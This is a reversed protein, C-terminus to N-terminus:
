RGDDLMEARKVEILREILDASLPEDVAFHLSGMTQKYESLETALKGLVRGSHPLYALHKNFAAIGAVVKGNEAFAPMGYSIKQEAHPVYDLIRRRVEELTSRKPEPLAAIYADVEATSMDVNQRTRERWVM